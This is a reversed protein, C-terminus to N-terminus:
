APRAVQCLRRRANWPCSPDYVDFQMIRRNQALV